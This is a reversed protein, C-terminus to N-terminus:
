CYLSAMLMSISKKLDLKEIRTKSITRLSVFNVEISDSSRDSTALHASPQAREKRKRVQQQYEQKQSLGM